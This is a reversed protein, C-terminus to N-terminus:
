SEGDAIIALATCCVEKGELILYDSTCRFSVLEGSLKLTHLLEYNGSYSLFQRNCHIKLPTSIQKNKVKIIVAEPTLNEIGVIQVHQVETEKTELMDYRNGREKTPFEPDKLSIKLKKDHVKVAEIFQKKDSYEAMSKEADEQSERQIAAKYNAKDKEFKVMIQDISQAFESEKLAMLEPRKSVDIKYTIKVGEDLIETFPLITVIKLNNEKCLFKFVKNDKTVVATITQNDICMNGSPEAIKAANALLISHRYIQIKSM